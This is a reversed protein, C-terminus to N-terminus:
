QGTILLLFDAHFVDLGRQLSDIPIPQALPLYPPHIISSTLVPSYFNQRKPEPIQTPTRCDLSTNKLTQKFSLPVDEAQVHTDCSSSFNRSIQSAEVYSLLIYLLIFQVVTSIYALKSEERSLLTQYCILIRAIM